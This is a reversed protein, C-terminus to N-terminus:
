GDLLSRTAEFHPSGPVAFTDCVTMHDCDPVRMVPTACAQPWCDAMLQSQRHFEDSELAGVVRLLPAENAWPLYAPSLERAADADLRLDDRLFPARTLPELDFVGSIAVGGALLARPLHQSARSWDTALMMGTLHGGASHGSCFIRGRDIALSGAHDFIWACARRVEDVIQALPTVPMLGYNVIAVSTGAAVYAPAVWSFDAKDFSRWYGGHIFVLLPKASGAAPFFDLREAAAPGYPIDLRGGLLERASAADRRWRTYGAVADAIRLRPNYELDLPDPVKANV